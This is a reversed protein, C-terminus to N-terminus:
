IDKVGPPPYKDRGTKQPPPRYKKGNRQKKPPPCTNSSTFWWGTSIWQLWPLCRVPERTPQRRAMFWQDMAAM